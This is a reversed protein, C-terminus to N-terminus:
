RNKEALAHAELDTWIALIKEESIGLNNLQRFWDKLKPGPVLFVGDRELWNDEERSPEPSWFVCVAKVPTGKVTEPYAAILDWKNKKAQRAASSIRDDIFKGGSGALEWASSSWKTEFVLIGGPGVAIHDIDSKGKIHVGNVFLWGAGRLKWLEEVTYVEGTYGMYSNSAGSFVLIMIIALFPGSITLAGAAFWRVAGHNRVIFLLGSILPLFTLILILPWGRRAFNKISLRFKTNSYSGASKRGAVKKLRRNFELRQTLKAMKRSYM